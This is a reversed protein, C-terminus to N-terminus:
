KKIPRIQCITSRGERRPTSEVGGIDSISAIIRDILEQEHQRTSRGISRIVIKVGHQEELFQRIQNIKHTFDGLGIFPKFRMEKMEKHKSKQNADREKKSQEYKFKSFSM